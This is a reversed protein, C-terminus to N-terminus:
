NMYDFFMGKKMIILFHWSNDNDIVRLRYFQERITKNISLWSDEINHRFYLSEKLCSQKAVTIYDNDM